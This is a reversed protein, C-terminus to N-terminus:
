FAVLVPEVEDFYQVRVAADPASHQL